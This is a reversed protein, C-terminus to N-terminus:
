GFFFSNHSRSVPSLLKGVIASVQKSASAGLPAAGEAVQPARTRKVPLYPASGPDGLLDLRPHRSDALAEPGAAM